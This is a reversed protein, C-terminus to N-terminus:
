FATVVDIGTQLTAKAIGVAWQMFRSYGDDESDSDGQFTESLFYVLGMALAQVRSAKLFIEEVANRNRTFSVNRTDQMVLPTSRQSNLFIQIMLEKLFECTRAKLVTFDV